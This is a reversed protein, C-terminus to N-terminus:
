KGKYYINDKIIKRKCRICTVEDINDSVYGSGKTGCIPEVTLTTEVDSFSHGFHRVVDKPKGNKYREGAAM